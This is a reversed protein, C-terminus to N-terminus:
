VRPRIATRQRGFHNKVASGSLAFFIVLAVVSVVKGIRFGLPSYEVRLLHHGPELPIARLCYNAPMIHYRAQTSGPLALARWGSSYADTILLLSPAAVDAQILLYGTASELMKVTGKETAPQPTPFPQSELIVERQMDFDVNTLASLIEPYNTMVRFHDVLLLQPLAGGFEWFKQEDDSFVYRLRVMRMANIHIVTPPKGVPADFDLGEAFSQFRKYRLLGAPDDGTMDLAGATMAANPNYHLVRYNGPHQALGFLVKPSYPQQSFASM